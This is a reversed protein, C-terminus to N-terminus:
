ARRTSEPPRPGAQTRELRAGLNRLFTRAARAENLIVDAPGQRDGDLELILGGRFGVQGLATMLGEWPITGEGPVRHDDKQGSNDHAHVMRLHGALKRVDGCLDEGLAAHGTDLCVGVTSEPISALDWLIDRPRGRFLHPLMNELLLTMGRARCHAATRRIVALANEGRQLREPPDPHLVKEPGPHLVFYRVGLFGAAEVATLIERGAAERRREDPSSIDIERGFPAHFSYAEMGLRRIEDRARRVAGADRYDLHDPHSCIELTLFGAGRIAELCDLIRRRYFCGTSLGVPWDYM